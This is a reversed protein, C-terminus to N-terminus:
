GRLWKPLPQLRPEGHDSVGSGSIGDGCGSNGGGDPWLSPGTYISIEVLKGRLWAKVSADPVLACRRRGDEQRNLPASSETPLHPTRLAALM